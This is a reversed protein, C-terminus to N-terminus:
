WRRDVEKEADVHLSKEGNKMCLAHMKPSVHGPELHKDADVEKDHLSNTLTRLVVKASALLRVAVGTDHGIITKMTQYVNM